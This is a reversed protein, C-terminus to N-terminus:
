ESEEESIGLEKGLKKVKVELCKYNESECLEKLKEYRHLMIYEPSRKYEREARFADLREGWTKKVESLISKENNRSSFEDQM